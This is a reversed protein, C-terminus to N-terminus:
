RDYVSPKYKWVYNKLTKPALTAIWRSGRRFHAFSKMGFPYHSLLVNSDLHEFFYDLILAIMLLDDLQGFLPIWDPIFDIPSIVLAILALLVVKDRQPIRPDEAVDKLFKIIKKFTELMATKVTDYLWQRDLTSYQM